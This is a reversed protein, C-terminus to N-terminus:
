ERFFIIRRAGAGGRRKWAEAQPMACGSTMSFMPLPHTNFLPVCANRRMKQAHNKMFRHACFALFSNVFIKLEVVSV